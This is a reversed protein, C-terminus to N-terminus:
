KILLLIFTFTSLLLIPLLLILCTFIVAKLLSHAESSLFSPLKIKDKIIKQQVKERNGGIFPPQM